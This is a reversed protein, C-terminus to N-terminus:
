YDSPGQLPGPGLKSMGINQNPSFSNIKELKLEARFRAIFSDAKDDVDSSPPAVVEAVASPPPSAEVDSSPSVSRSSLLRVFDGEVAFKWDPMKFPPPPPAPINKMPSDGGSSSDDVANLFGSMMTLPGRPKETLFPAVRTVAASPPRLVTRRRPPPPPPPAPSTPTFTIIKKKHLASPPPPPPPPAAPATAPPPQLRAPPPQSQNLLSHLNDVSRHRQPKKKKKHYFSTFFGKKTLPSIAAPSSSEPVPAIVPSSIKRPESSRARRREGDGRKRGTYESSEKEPSWIKGAVTRRSGEGDEGSVNYSIRKAKKKVAATQPPAPAPPPLYLGNEPPPIGAYGNDELRIRQRLYNRSSELNRYYHLHTDDSFRRDRHDPPPSLERLDPYSSSARQRRLGNVYNVPQDNFDYWQPNTSTAPSMIPAGTSSEPVSRDFGNELSLKEDNNINRALFGFALAILVLIFNISDLSKKIFTKPTSLHYSFQNLSPIIFLTSLLAFLLLFVIFVGSNFFLASLRRRNTTTQLWFPSTPPTEEEHEGDEEMFEPQSLNTKPKALVDVLDPKNKVSGVGHDGDGVAVKVIVSINDNSGKQLALMSLYDAAAQAAPDVGDNGREAAANGGNKKHWILIRKRAVECAEENSIVDWLGDSALILCEDERARATVTVEPEPIIWPKLYRDGSEGISRSMALVGFVRHGNWQIVKGGAAEIRAYEDERNPKHDNSLAMAEKGRYLVARSDGCNAVIIHSSCILAVVATSGVTEPAVPEPNTLAKGGVEDDVKQFCKTFAKEWGIQVTDNTTGKLLEQKVVKLEEELAIHVRERCYNAVKSGGHGDYVGFFHATLDSLNPNVRDIVHDAVFMKIPVQMFQPVCVVADEMEPRKGCVSHSGFLPRYELEFVSRVGKGHNKEAAIAAVVSAKLTREDNETEITILEAVIQGNEMGEIAVAIPLGGSSANMAVLEVPEDGVSMVDDADSEQVIIDGGVVGNLSKIGNLNPDSLLTATEAFLKVRTFDVHNGLGSNESIPNTLSFTVSVAPPMEEM